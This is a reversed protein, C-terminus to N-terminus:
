PQHSGDHREEAPSGRRRETAKPAGGRGDARADAEKDETEKREASAAAGRRELRKRDGSFIGKRKKKEEVAMGGGDDVLTRQGAATSAMECSLSFSPGEDTECADSRAHPNFVFKDTAEARRAAAPEPDSPREEDRGQHGEGAPFFPPTSSAAVVRSLSSSPQLSGSELARAAPGPGQQRANRKSFSARSALNSSAFLTDAFVSERDDDPHVEVLHHIPPVELGILEYDMHQMLHNAKAMMNLCGHSMGKFHLTKGRRKYGRSLANMTAMASYDFLRTNGSLMCVVTPPDADYNFASEFKSATSFCLPGHVEYYKIQRKEDEAAEVCFRRNAEWAFILAAIFIGIGAAMAVNLFKCCLTVAVVIVADARTIKQVLCPHLTRLREPLFSAVVMPLSFWKFTHFAVCFMIGALAAIPLYNLVKYAAAILIFVFIAQLFGSEKGKGGSRLNMVSLGIMAGGGMGGFFACVINAVGAAWLQQNGDGKVPPKGRLIAVAEEKEGATAASGVLGRESDEGGSARLSAADAGGHRGFPLFRDSAHMHEMSLPLAPCCLPLRLDRKEYRGSDTREPALLRGQPGEAGGPSVASSEDGGQAAAAEHAAPGELERGYVAVRSMQAGVAKKRARRGGTGEGEELDGGKPSPPSSATGPAACGAGSQSSTGLGDAAAARPSFAGTDVSTNESSLDHATGRKQADAGHSVLERGGEPEAGDGLRRAQRGEGEAKAGSAVAGASVGERAGRPGGDPGSGAAAGGALASKEFPSEGGALKEPADSALTHLLGNSRGDTKAWLPSWGRELFRRFTTKKPAKPEPPLAAQAAYIDVVQVTMLTELTAVVALICGHVFADKWEIKSRFDWREDAFFPIPLASNPTLEAVEGITPTKTEFFPRALLFEMLGAAVMSILSGPLLKGVIPIKKWGEMVVAALVCEAAMWGARSGTIFLRTAPDRFIQLQALFIIIAIGNCFGITVSAPILQVLSALRSFATLVLLLGAFFVSVVLTEVGKVECKLTTPSCTRTTFAGITAAFSGTVGNIMGPRGGLGCAFLGILWASHVGLAPPLNAMLAFSASEPVQTLAVILAAFIESIYYRVGDRPRNTFGWGWSWGQMVQWRRRWFGACCDTSCLSSKPSEDHEEVYEESDDGLAPHLFLGGGRGPAPSRDEGDVSKRRFGPKKKRRRRAGTAIARDGVVPMLQFTEPASPSSRPPPVPSWESVDRRAEMSRDGEKEADHVYYARNDLQALPVVLRADRAPLGPLLDEGGRAPERRKKRKGEETAVGVRVSEADGSDRRGGERREGEERTTQRSAGGADASAGTVKRGEEGRRAPRM